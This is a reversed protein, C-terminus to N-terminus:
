YPLQYYLEEVCQLLLQIAQLLELQILEVLHEFVGVEDVDLLFRIVQVHLCVQALLEQLL